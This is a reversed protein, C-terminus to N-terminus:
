PLDEWNVIQPKIQDYPKYMAPNAGQGQPGVRRKSTEIQAKKQAIFSRLVADKEEPSKNPDGLTVKLSEGERETFQAGFTQRLLPLVENDVKSIYETRAVADEGVPLGAERQLTDELRGARTYTAKKGLESLEKAVQELRPFTAQQESLAAEAQGQAKGVESMAASQEAIQPKYVLDSQNQGTQKQNSFQQLVDGYGQIPAVGGAGDGYIGKDYLKATLTLDNVRQTDGVARAQQIANAIQIAAPNSGYQQSIVAKQRALELEKPFRQDYQANEMAQALALPATEENGMLIKQMALAGQAPDSSSSYAGLADAMAKRSADIRAQEMQAAKGEQYGGVGQTLARALGALPSQKVAVGSVMETSTPQQGQKMLSEAMRRRREIEPKPTGGFTVDNRKSTPMFTM